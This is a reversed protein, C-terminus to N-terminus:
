HNTGDLTIAIAGGPLGNYESDRTGASTATGPVLLAFQLINRGSLPLKAIQENRVTSAITTSTTEVVPTAGEVSVQETVGAVQFQVVVDTPRGTQVLIEQITVPQFGTATATLTYRGPQLSPFVFGGEPGSKADLSTGTALDILVVDANAVVAGSADKVTGVVQGTVRVQASAAVAFMLLVVFAALFRARVSTLMCTEKFVRVASVAVQVILARPAVPTLDTTKISLYVGRTIHNPVIPNM